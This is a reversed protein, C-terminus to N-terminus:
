GNAEELQEADLLQKRLDLVNRHKRSNCSKCLPQVNDITNPGGLVLPIVHDVTLKIHPEQLFCMLCRYDCFEKLDQWEEATFSEQGDITSRRRHTAANVKDTNRQKWGAHIEWYREPNDLRWQRQREALLIRNEARYRANSARIKEKNRAKYERNKENKCWVCDSRLGSGDGRGRMDFCYDPLKLGCTCCTKYEVTVM